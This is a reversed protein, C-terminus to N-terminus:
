EPLPLSQSERTWMVPELFSALPGVMSPLGSSLSHPEHPSVSSHHPPPLLSHKKGTAGEEEGGTAIEGIGEDKRKRQKESGKGPSSSLRGTLVVKGHTLMM